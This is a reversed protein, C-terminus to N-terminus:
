SPARRRGGCARARAGGLRSSTEELQERLETPRRPARRGRARRAQRAAGRPRADPDHRQLRALERALTEVRDRLEDLRQRAEVDGARERTEAIVAELQQVRTRTERLEAEVRRRDDGAEREKEIASELAEVRERTARMDAVTARTEELRASLNEQAQPTGALERELREAIERTEEVVARTREREEEAQARM